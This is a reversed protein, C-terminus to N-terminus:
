RGGVGMGVTDNVDFAARNLEAFPRGRCAPVVSQPHTKVSASASNTGNSALSRQVPGHHKSSDRRRESGIRCNRAALKRLPKFLEGIPLFFLKLVIENSIERCIRLM